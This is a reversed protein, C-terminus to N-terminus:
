PQAQTDRLALTVLIGASIVGEELPVFPPLWSIAPIREFAIGNRLRNASPEKAFAALSWTVARLTYSADELSEETADQDGIYVIALQVEGARYETAVMGEFDAPRAVFIWLAPTSLGSPVRRLAVTRDDYENAIDVLAPPAPDGGDRAVNLLQAAVGNAGALYAAIHRAAELIM